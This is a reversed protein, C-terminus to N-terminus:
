FPRFQDATLNAACHLLLAVLHAQRSTGTKGFANKLHVRTTNLSIGADSAIEGISKGETLARAVLAESHTLGFLSKLVDCTLQQAASARIFLIASPSDDERVPSFRKCVIAAPLNDKRSVFLGGASGSDGQASDDTAAVIMGKLRETPTHQTTSLRRGLNRICDGRKLFTKAAENSYAITRRRDVILTPTLSRDIRDFEARQAAALWELQRGLQLARQLHPLFRAVCAEDVLDYARAASSRRMTIVLEEAPGLSIVSTINHFPACDHREFCFQTAVTTECPGHKTDCKEGATGPPPRYTRRGNAWPNEEIDPTRSIFYSSTGRLGLLAASTSDFAAAMRLAVGAWAAPNQAAAYVHEILDLMRESHDLPRRVSNGGVPLPDPAVKMSSSKDRVRGLEHSSVVAVGASSMSKYWTIFVWDGACLKYRKACSSLDLLTKQQLQVLELLGTLESLGRGRM